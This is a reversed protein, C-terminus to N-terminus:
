RTCFQKRLAEDPHTQPLGMSRLTPIPATKLVAVGPTLAQTNEDVAYQEKANRWIWLHRSKCDSEFSLVVVLGDGAQNDITVMDGRTVGSQPRLRAAVDAAVQQLTRDNTYSGCGTIFALSLLVRVRYSVPTRPTLEGLGGM